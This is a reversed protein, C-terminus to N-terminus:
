DFVEEIYKDLSEEIEFDLMPEIGKEFFNNKERKTQFLRYHIGEYNYVYFPHGTEVNRYTELTRNPRFYEVYVQRFSM